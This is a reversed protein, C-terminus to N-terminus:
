RGSIIALKPTSFSSTARHAPNVPAMKEMACLVVATAHPRADSRNPRFGMMRMPKALVIIQKKSQPMDVLKVIATTARAIIPPPFPFPVNGRKGRM